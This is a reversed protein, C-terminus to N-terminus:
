SVPDIASTNHEPHTKANTVWIRCGGPRASIDTAHIKRGQDSRAPTSPNPLPGLIPLAGPPVWHRILGIYLPTQNCDERSIDLAIATQHTGILNTRETPKGLPACDEVLGDRVM